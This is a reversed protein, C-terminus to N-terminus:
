LPPPLAPTERRGSALAYGSFHTTTFLALAQRGTGQFFVDFVESFQASGDSRIDSAGHDLYGAWVDSLKKKSSEKGLETSALLQAVYIPTAFTIGHPQFDYVVRDGELATATVVTTESLAGSPFYLLLGAEPITLFGGEPTITGTVSTNEDLADARRVIHAQAVHENRRSAAGMELHQLQSTASPIGAPNDSCSATILLAASVAAHRRLKWHFM